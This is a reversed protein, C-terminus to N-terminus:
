TLAEIGPLTGKALFDIAAGGATSVFIRKSNKPFVKEIVAGTDGGGIVAHAKSAAIARAIKKTAGVFGKEYWGTPGNWVVLKAKKIKGIILATTQPGIDVIIDKAQVENIGCSISKKGRLVIVDVPLLLRENHLFRAIAKDQGDDVVSRGVTFGSVKLFSNAIAGSICVQDALTLFKEILPIKTEFKAGGLMFFFPHRVVLTLAAVEKTFVFGAYHPLLKPVGVISAHARHAVSFAEDIYIEALSALQKALKPDNKKEGDYRRINELLIVHGQPVRGIRKTTKPDFVDGTIFDVTYKKALYQAIPRLSKTGEELHAVLIPTMKKKLLFDITAYASTIRRDDLVIRGKLPVNFDVRVLARSGPSVKLSPLTQM